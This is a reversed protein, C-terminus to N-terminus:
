SVWVTSLIIVCAGWLVLSLDGLHQPSWSARSISPALGLAKMDEVLGPSPSKSISTEESGASASFLYLAM